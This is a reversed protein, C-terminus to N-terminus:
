KKSAAASKEKEVVIGALNMGSTDVVQSVKAFLGKYTEFQMQDLDQVKNQKYSWSGDKGKTAVLVNEIWKVEQAKDTYAFGFTHIVNGKEETIKLKYHNM